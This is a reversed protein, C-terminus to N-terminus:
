MAGGRAKPAILLSGILPGAAFMVGGLFFLLIAAQLWTFVM